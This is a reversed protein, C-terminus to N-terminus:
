VPVRQMRAWLGILALLVVLLGGAGGVLLWNIRRPSFVEATFTASGYGQTGTVEITARWSGTTPLQVDAEYFTGNLFPQPGAEIVIEEAAQGEPLLHFTVQADSVKM